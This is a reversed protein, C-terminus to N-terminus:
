CPLFVVSKTGRLRISDDALRAFNCVEAIDETASGSHPADRDDGMREGVLRAETMPALCSQMETTTLYVRARCRFLRL